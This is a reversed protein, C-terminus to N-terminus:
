PQSQSRRQSATPVLHLFIYFVLAPILYLLARNLTQMNLAAWYHNTLFFVFFVFMLVSAVALLENSPRQLLGGRSMHLVLLLIFLPWLLNWNITLFFSEIFASSVNHFTFSFSGLPGAEITNEGIYFRGLGPVNIDMGLTFLLAAAGAAVLLAVREQKTSPALVTRVFALLIILGLVIGPIKTQTCAFALLLALVAPGWHKSEQWQHLFFLGMAFSAALWIDAYGGLATHINLYPMNLLLYSASTAVLVSAGCLRLQGYLALGLNIALLWWPLQLMSHDHTKAGLMTWLHVLPVTPPYKWAAQNGLTYVAEDTEPQRLWQIPSVWASLTDNFYWTIAKPAWNMWADWAYLPRTLVEQLLTLYRWGILLLLGVVAAKVWNPEPAGGDNAPKAGAWPQRLGAIACLALLVTCLLSFSFGIGAHDWLRLLLTTSFIGVIYGQGLVLPWNWRGGPILLKRVWLTGLLWPLLLAATIGPYSIAEAM